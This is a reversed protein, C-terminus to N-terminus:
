DGIRILADAAVAGNPSCLLPNIEIEHPRAESVYSQVAMVTDLIADVDAAASGRYGSLLPAMRLGTLAARVAERPAPVLLSASDALLETHTGGAALTLVYGHAPDAVIGILLEAVTDGVMEEILFARTPMATAAAHVAEATQLNLVVAAAETKHAIGAGKLVVPFGISRAAAVAGEVTDNARRAPVSVGVAALAAKAEVETMTRTPGAHPPLLLPAAPTPAQGIFAATAIAQMAEDVGSLPVIGLGILRQAVAEPLTEKLSSLVAMPKGTADRTRAVAAIVPDWAAPDCRDTRPMDLVVCGLAIDGSVAATFAAALADEDGWIDTHYDLPNALAIRPGLVRRLAHAQAPRLPPFSVGSDVATDAMLSAEGGSCSMSAIRASPLPGAVHLLKLVELFAPLSRVQGIGLRALLARAGADTGALSATHTVTAARAQDSRGMKLAVVPKGLARAEAAMAEFARLDDIGEIHLGVATVRDDKLVARAMTSLGTQAQNGVTLMYAVPLGRDQMTLNLAINSSQTIIAVGTDVREGGHQDPWLAVGDLYNLFGYCNPGLITMEGAADLLADQISAGTADTGSTERFGSAFCVAGGAGMASLAAVAEITRDRNIGIFVADPGTPLDEIRPVAPLGGITAKTPHVPWLDGAFGILRCQEVVNACWAGGGIVAITRPRLLRHIGASM